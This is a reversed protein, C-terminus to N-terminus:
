CSTVNHFRNSPPNPAPLLFRDIARPIMASMWKTSPWIIASVCRGGYPDYLPAPAVVFALSVPRHWSTVQPRTHEVCM